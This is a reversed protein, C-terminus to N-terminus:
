QSIHLDTRTKLVPAADHKLAVIGGQGESKKKIGTNNKACNGRLM